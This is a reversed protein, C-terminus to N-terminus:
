IEGNRKRRKIEDRIKAAMEYDENELAKNLQDQLSLPQKMGGMNSPDLDAPGMMIFGSGQPPMMSPGSMGLQEFIEELPNKSGEIDNGQLRPDFGMNENQDGGIEPGSNEEKAPGKDDKLEEETAPRINVEESRGNEDYWTKKEHVLGNRIDRSIHDPERDERNTQPGLADKSTIGMIQGFYREFINDIRSNGKM